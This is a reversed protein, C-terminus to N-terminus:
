ILKNDFKTIVKDFTKDKTDPYLYGPGGDFTFSTPIVTNKVVSYSDSM